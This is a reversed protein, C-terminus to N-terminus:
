EDRDAKYAFGKVGNTYTFPMAESTHDCRTAATVSGETSSGSYVWYENLTCSGSVILSGESALRGMPYGDDAPEYYLSGNVIITGHNVGIEFPMEGYIILTGGERVTFATDGRKWDDGEITVVADPAVILQYQTLSNVWSPQGKLTMSRALWFVCDRPSGVAEITEANIVPYPHEQVSPMIDPYDIALFWEREKATMGYEDVEDEEADIAIAGAPEAEEVTGSGEIATFDGTFVEGLESESQIAGDNTVDGALWQFRGGYGLYLLGHNVFSGAYQLFQEGRELALVGGAEVDVSGYNEIRGMGGTVRGTQGIVMESFNRIDGGAGNLSGEIRMQGRNTLSAGVELLLSVHPRLTIIEGAPITITDHVTISYVCGSESAQKLQEYDRVDAETYLIELSGGEAERLEERYRDSIILRRLAPMELVDELGDSLDCYALNLMELNRLSRIGALSLTGRNCSLDLQKLKSLKMIPTIDRLVNGSLALAELNVLQAFDSADSLSGYVAYTDTGPLYIGARGNEETESVAQAGYEEMTETLQSGYVYVEHIESARGSLGLAGLASNRAINDNLSRLVFFLVALVALVSFGITLMTTKKAAATQAPTLSLRSFVPTRKLEELYAAEDAYAPKVIAQRAGLLLSM